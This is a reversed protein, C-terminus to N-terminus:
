AEGIRQALPRTATRPSTATDPPFQDLAAAGPRKQKKSSRWEESIRGAPRAKLRHAFDERDCGDGRARQEEADDGQESVARYQLAAGSRRKGDLGGVADLFRSVLADAAEPLPDLDAALVAAIRYEEAEVAARACRPNRQSGPESCPFAAERHDLPVLAPLALRQLAGARRDGGRHRDVRHRVVADLNGLKHAPTEAGAFHDQESVGPTRDEANM